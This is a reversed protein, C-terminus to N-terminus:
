GALNLGNVVEKIDMNMNVEWGDRSREHWRKWVTWSFNQAAYRVEEHMSCTMYM